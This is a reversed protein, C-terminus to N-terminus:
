PVSRKECAEVLPEVPLLSRVSIILGKIFDEPAEEDVLKGVVIHTNGPNVKQVYGEIYRLLKNSYLHHILQPVYNFRDCVNILPRSDPLKIDLLFDLVKEPDYHNSERTVREVEQLQNMKAAAEIYKFHIKKDESTAILPQLFFYLGEYSKFQEFIKVCEELGLQESYEKAIQVVIQLNGRPNVLLIEKMCELAWERSLTGFYEVLAQPSISHTNVVVRKIDMLDTYHELARHYLGAKECLQAIRPRDYHTIMRTALIAEAVKPFMLLNVELVRTQLMAHEPLNPKLVDLLFTTAERIMNRQLFLNTITNYDLPCGGEMRGMNIAFDVAAGADTTMITQLLFLFDPRYGIERWWRRRGEYAEEMIAEERWLSGGGDGGGDMLKRRWRRRRGYAEEVMVEERWLSGGGDGGGEMVERWWRRRGGDGGGVMVEGPGSCGGHGCSGLRGFGEERRRGGRGEDDMAESTEGDAGVERRTWRRWGGELVGRRGGDGGEVM